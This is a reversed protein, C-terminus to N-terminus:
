RSRGELVNIISSRLYSPMKQIINRTNDQTNLANILDFDLAKLIKQLRLSTIDGEGSLFRQLTSYKVGSKTSLTQSSVSKDLMMKKISEILKNSEM